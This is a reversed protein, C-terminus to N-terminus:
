FVDHAIHIVLIGFLALLMCGLLFGAFLMNRMQAHIRKEIEEFQKLDELERIIPMREPRGGNREEPGETRIKPGVWHPPQPDCIV